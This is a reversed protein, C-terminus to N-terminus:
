NKFFAVNKRLTKAHKNLEQSSQMNKSTLEMNQQMFQDISSVTANIQLVDSAQATTSENITKILQDVNKFDDVIKQLSKETDQFLVMSTDIQKQNEQLIAKIDKASTASRGALIRVEGAVVAFGKGADGARAAEVSANLALLNTQFAIEDLLSIIQIIENSFNLLNVINTSAERSLNLGQDANIMSNEASAKVEKMNHSSEKLSSTLIDIAKACNGLNEVQFITKESLNTADVALKQTTQEVNGALSQISMTIENLKEYTQNVAECIAGFKGKFNNQMASRLDGESLKQLANDIASISTDAMEMFNNFHQTLVKFFGTQGIDSIRVSLDGEAAKQVINELMNEIAQEQTIDQWEIVWGLHRSQKVIIPTISIQFSKAGLSVTHKQITTNSLLSMFDGKVFDHLSSCDPNIVGEKEFAMLMELSANNKFAISYNQDVIIVPNHSNELGSKIQVLKFSSNIARQLDGIEDARTSTKTSDLINGSLVVTINDISEILPLTISRSIFRNFLLLFVSLAIGILFMILSFHEVNAYVDDITDGTAVCPKFVAVFSVKTTITESKPKKWKYKNFFQDKYKLLEINSKMIRNSIIGDATNIQSLDKQEFHPKMPHMQYVGKTDFIFIYNDGAYRLARIEEFARKKAEEESLKGQTYLGHHNKLINLGIETISKIKIYREDLLGSISQFIALFLGLFLVFIAGISIFSIKKSIKINEIKM